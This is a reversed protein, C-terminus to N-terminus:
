CILIIESPDHAVSSQLLCNLKVLYM